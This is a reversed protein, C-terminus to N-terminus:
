HVYLLSGLRCRHICLRGTAAASDSLSLELVPANHLLVTRRARLQSRSVFIVDQGASEPQASGSVRGQFRVGRWSTRRNGCRWRGLALLICAWQVRSAAIVFAAGGALPFRRFIFGIVTWGLWTNTQTIQM